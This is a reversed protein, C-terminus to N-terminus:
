LSSESPKLVNFLKLQGHKKIANLLKRSWGEDLQHETAYM